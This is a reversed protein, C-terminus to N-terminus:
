SVGPSISKKIVRLQPAALLFAIAVIQAILFILSSTFLGYADAIVGGGIVPISFGIYAYVFLGATARSTESSGMSTFKFLSSLYTFGYSSASTLSTGMLILPLSNKSIGLLMALYGLPTFLLGLKLAKTSQVRRALPQCLFGVFIALFIVLGTYQSLGINKLNLPIIAITMGTTAWAILMSAGYLWTDKPFLPLRLLKTKKKKYSKFLWPTTALLFVAMVFFIVFSKPLFTMGEIELSIGTALAGAGFGLSTSSTVLLAAKSKSGELALEGMYASGSTTALATGVGLFFRAILLSSWGPTIVLLLTALLCLTLAVLLPKIRGVVDSIGGLFILTPMLGVVYAAFGITVATAGLGSKAAYEGYLPAQLNVSFTVTFLVFFLIATSAKRNM